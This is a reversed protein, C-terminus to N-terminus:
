ARKDAYNDSEDDKFMDEMIEDNKNSSFSGGATFEDGGTGSAAGFGGAAFGSDGGFNTGFSDGGGAAFNGGAGGAVGGGGYGGGGGRNGYNGGGYGGSGGYGGGGGGYGGGGFGGGGGYGGGGFGGGGSARFGGTRETAHNVRINRGHLDKGDMATIAASAEESSTYTVFGFGRSRGSERDMIVRAEIVQGYNAFADRLSHDDTGYSLGGVFLKSSSMCRIAQYISPNSSTAKKLLGGLKNALAM